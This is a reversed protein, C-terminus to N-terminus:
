AKLLDNEGSMIVSMRSIPSTLGVELYLLYGVIWKKFGREFFFFIYLNRETQKVSRDFQGSHFYKYGLCHYM